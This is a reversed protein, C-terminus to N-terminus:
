QHLTYDSVFSLLFVISVKSIVKYAVLANTQHCRAKYVKGFSGEGILNFIEYYRSDM